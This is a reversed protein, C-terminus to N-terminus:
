TKLQDISSKILPSFLILAPHKGIETNFGRRLCRDYFAGMSQTRQASQPSFRLINIFINVYNERRATM